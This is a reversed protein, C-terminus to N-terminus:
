LTLFGFFCVSHLELESHGLVSVFLSFYGFQQEPLCFGIFRSTRNGLLDLRNFFIEFSTLVKRVSDPIWFFCVSLLESESHGLNLM